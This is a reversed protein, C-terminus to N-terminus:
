VMGEGSPTYKVANTLLNTLVLRLKANDGFLKTPIESSVNVHFALNQSEARLKIMSLVDTIMSQLEYEVPVIEMKGSEIKNLDLIDNVITLLINGANQIDTAYDRIIKDNCERLIMEDM